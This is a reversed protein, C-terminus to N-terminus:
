QAAPSVGVYNFGDARPVGLGTVYAAIAANSFSEDGPAAIGDDDYLPDDTPMGSKTIQWVAM